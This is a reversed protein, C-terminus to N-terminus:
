GGLATQTDVLLFTLQQRTYADPCADILRRMRELYENARALDHKCPVDKALEPLVAALGQEMRVWTLPQPTHGGAANFAADVLEKKVTNTM